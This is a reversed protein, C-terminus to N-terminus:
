LWQTAAEFVKGFSADISLFQEFVKVDVRKLFALFAVLIFDAYSVTEGLFFPGGNKKLLDAMERAPGKAEEWCKENAQEQEMLTLSKGFVKERTLEFYEASPKNLLVRSVKPLTYPRLPEHVKGVYDRIQVVVPDDLHLSPSPYRKELEHVITWSDMSFTGDDYQIAPSTYDTSYGPANSDNPAMGLAKFTPAIDPYEVWETKYVIGKYNLVMRTKWPNLSWSGTPPKSPIDYLVVKSM